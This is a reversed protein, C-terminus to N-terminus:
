DLVFFEFIFSQIMKKSKSRTKSWWKWESSESCKSCCCFSTPVTKEYWWRCRLFIRGNIPITNWNRDFALLRGPLLHCHFRHVYFVVFVCVFLIYIKKFSDCALLRSPLLHCHFRHVYFSRFRSFFIKKQILIKSVVWVWPFKMEQHLNTGRLYKSVDLLWSAYKPCRKSLLLM